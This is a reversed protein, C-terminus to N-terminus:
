IDCGACHSAPHKGPECLSVRDICMHPRNKRISTKLRKKKAIAKRAAEALTQGFGLVDFTERYSKKDIIATIGPLRVLFPSPCDPRYEVVHTLKYLEKINKM